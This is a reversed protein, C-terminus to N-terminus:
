PPPNREDGKWPIGEREGRGAVRSRGVTTTGVSSAATRSSRMPGPSPVYLPMFMSTHRAWAPGVAPSRMMGFCVLPPLTRGPPPGAIWVAV